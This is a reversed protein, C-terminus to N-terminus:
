LVRDTHRRRIHGAKCVTELHKPLEDAMPIIRQRNGFVGMFYDYYVVEAGAAKWRMINHEYATDNICSGDPKGCTRQEKAWTAEDIQLCRELKGRAPVGM